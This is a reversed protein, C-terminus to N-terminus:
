LTLVQADSAMLIDGLSGKRGETQKIIDELKHKPKGKKDREDLKNDVYTGYMHIASDIM